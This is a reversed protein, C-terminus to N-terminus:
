LQLTVILPHLKQVSLQHVAAVPSRPQMSCSANCQLLALEETIFCVTHAYRKNPRPQQQGFLVQVDDDDTSEGSTGTDSTTTIPKQRPPSADADAGTAAAATAAAAATDSSGSSETAAAAAAAAAAATDPEELQLCIVDGSVV